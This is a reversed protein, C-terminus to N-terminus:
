KDGHDWFGLTYWCILMGLTKVCNSRKDPNERDVSCRSAVKFKWIQRFFFLFEGWKVEEWRMKRTVRYYNLGKRGWEEREEEGAPSPSMNMPVIWFKVLVFYRATVQGWDGSAACGPSLVCFGRHRCGRWRLGTPSTQWPWLEEYEIKSQRPSPKM